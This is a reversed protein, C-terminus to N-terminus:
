KDESGQLDLLIQIQQLASKQYAPNLSAFLTVAKQYLEEAEDILVPEQGSELWKSNVRYVECVHEFFVDQIREVRGTEIAAIADRTVGVRRGFERQTLGVAQRIVKMQEYREM